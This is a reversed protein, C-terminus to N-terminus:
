VLLRELNKKQKAETFGALAILLGEVKERSPEPLGHGKSDAGVSVFEPQILEIWHPFVDLDFDLIPEISVMKPFPLSPSFWGVREWVMPAQSLGYERNTELTTGLMTKPPFANVFHWFRRPNKSQFLFRNDYKSCHALVQEIMESPVAEAFLDNTSCVFIFRGQGLDTELEREAIRPVGSYKAKLEPYRKLNQVYCYTCFHSCAGSLPTWTADVFNYMNGASKNLGM